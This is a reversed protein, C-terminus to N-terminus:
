RYAEIFRKLKNVESLWAKKNEYKLDNNMNGYEYYENLRYECEAVLNEATLEKDLLTTTSSEFCLSTMLTDYRKIMKAIEKESM